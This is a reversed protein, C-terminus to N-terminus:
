GLRGIKSFQHVVVGGSIFMHDVEVYGSILTCSAIVTRNGIRANHSTGV